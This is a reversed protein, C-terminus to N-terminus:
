PALQPARGHIVFTTRGSAVNALYVADGFAFVLHSCSRTFAMHSIVNLERVGRTRSHQEVELLVRPAIRTLQEPNRQTALTDILIQDREGETHVTARLGSAECTVSQGYTITTHEHPPDTDTIAGSALDIRQWRTRTGAYLASSDDAWVLEEVPGVAVRRVAATAVTAIAVGSMEVAVNEPPAQDPAPLMVAFMTRDPSLRPMRDIAVLDPVPRRDRGERIAYRDGAREIRLTADPTIALPIPGDEALEGTDLMLRALVGDHEVLIAEHPPAVDAHSSLPTILHNPPPRCACLAVILAVRM